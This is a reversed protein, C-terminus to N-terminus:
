EARVYLSFRSGPGDKRFVKVFRQSLGLVELNKLSGVAHSIIRMGIPAHDIFYKLMTDDYEKAFPRFVYVADNQGPRFSLFDGHELMITGYGNRIVTEEDRCLNERARIALEIMLKDREMGFGTEFFQRGTFLVGGFGCGYDVLRSGQLIHEDPVVDLFSRFAHLETSRYIARTAPDTEFSGGASAFPKKMMRCYEVEARKVQWSVRSTERMQVTNNILARM